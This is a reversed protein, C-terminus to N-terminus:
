SLSLLSQLEALLDKGRHFGRKQITRLAERAINLDDDSAANLLAALDVRDQPRRVDDRSLVKTAILYPITAVRVMFDEIIEIPEAAAVIEPEIGSSAFLLDVVLASEGSSPFTGM